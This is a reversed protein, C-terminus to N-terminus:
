SCISVVWYLYDNAVLLLSNEDVELKIGAIASLILGNEVGMTSRKLVPMIRISLWSHVTKVFFM